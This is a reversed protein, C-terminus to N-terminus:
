IMEMNKSFTTQQKTKKHTNQAVDDNTMKTYQHNVYINDALVIKELKKKIWEEEKKGGDILIKYIQFDLSRKKIMM